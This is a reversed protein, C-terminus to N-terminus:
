RGKSILLVNKNEMYIIILISFLVEFIIFIAGLFFVYNNKLILVSFSIISVWCLITISFYNFYKDLMKYGFMKQIALKMKNEEFYVNLNQIIITFIIVLSFFIIAVCFYIQNIAMRIDSAVSDYINIIPFNYVSPNFLEYLKQNIEEVDNAIIKLPGGSEMISFYPIRDNYETAVSVIPDTVCNGEEPNIDIRYSFFTQKNQIWIINLKKTGNEPTYFKLIDNQNNKYKLPVLIVYNEETEPIKVVQGNEDYVINSLLYNPNVIIDNLIYPENYLQKNLNYTEKELDSFDAFIAGKQNFYHYFEKFKDDNGNFPSIGDDIKKHISSITYYNKTKEWRSYSQIYRSSFISYQNILNASFVMFIISIFIKIFSNLTIISSNPKKNKLMDIIKIKKIYFFPISIFFISINIILLDIMMMKFIFKYFLFHYIKFNIFCLVALPIYTFIISILIISKIKKFLIDRYSYGIMKEIAIKKYSNLIDYLMILSFIIMSSGIILFIFINKYHFDVNTKLNDIKTTYIGYKELNSIIEDVDNEKSTQLILNRNFINEDLNNKFTRIEFNEKGNFSDIYAIQNIDGTKNTSIFKDSENESLDFFRGDIININKFLDTNNFYIYKITIFEGNKEIQRTGYLNAKYLDLNEKIISYIDKVDIKKDYSIIINVANENEGIKYLSENFSNLDINYNIFFIFISLFIFLISYIINKKM